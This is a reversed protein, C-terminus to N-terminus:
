KEETKLTILLPKISLYILTTTLVLSKKHLKIINITDAYLIPFIRSFYLM